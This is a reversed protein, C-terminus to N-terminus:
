EGKKLFLSRTIDVQLSVYQTIGPRPYDKFDQNQENLYNEVRYTLKTYPFGSYSISANLVPKVVCTDMNDPDYFYASCFQASHGIQFHRVSLSIDLNDKFDPVLPTSLGELSPSTMDYFINKMYTCNNSVVLGKVPEIRCDWEAGATWVSTYNRPVFMNQSQATAIIKDKTIGGFVSVTNKMLGAVLSIGPELQYKTEPVLGPNGHFSGGKGFKEFFSPNHSDMLGELFLAFSTAASPAARLQFQVGPLNHTGPKVDESYGLYSYVGSADDRAYTNLFLIKASLVANPEFLAEISGTLSYRRAFLSANGNVLPAYKEYNGNLYANVSLSKSLLVRVIGKAGGLLANDETKETQIYSLEPPATFIDQTYRAKAELVYSVGPNLRAELREIITAAQGNNRIKQRSDPFFIVNIGKNYNEYNIVTKLDTSANIPFIGNYNGGLSNYDNNLKIRESNQAYDFKTDTFPYNNKSRTWHASFTQFSSAVPTNVMAGAKVYGFSGGEINASFFNQKSQVTTINIVSGVGEESLEFPVAGKYVEISFINDLPIKSLDVSGDSASNMPMGDLFVKVKASPEGRISATAYEGIAGARQITIGSEQELVAPVDQFRGKFEEAKIIRVSPRFDDARRGNVIVRDVIAATDKKCLSDPTVDAYASLIGVACLGFCSVIRQV